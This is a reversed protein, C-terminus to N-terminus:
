KGGKIFNCILLGVLGIAAAVVVFQLIVALLGVEFKLVFAFIGIVVILVLIAILGNLKTTKANNGPTTKREVVEGELAPKKNM